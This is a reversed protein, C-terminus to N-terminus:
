LMEDMAAITVQHYTPMWTSFVGASVDPYDKEGVKPEVVAELDLPDAAVGERVLRRKLRVQRVKAYTM